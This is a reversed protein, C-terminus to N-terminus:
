YENENEGEIFDKSVGNIDNYYDEETYKGQEIERIAVVSWKNDKTEVRPTAGNSLQRARYSAITILLFQNGGLAKIAGQSTIRAM